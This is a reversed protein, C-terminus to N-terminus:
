LGVKQLRTQLDSQITDMVDTTAAGFISQALSELAVSANARHKAVWDGVLAKNEASEGVAAKVVADVWRTTEGHWDKM